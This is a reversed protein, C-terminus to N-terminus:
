GESMNFWVRGKLRRFPQSLSLRYNMKSFYAELLKVLQTMNVSKTDYIIVVCVCVCMHAHTHTHTHAYRVYM